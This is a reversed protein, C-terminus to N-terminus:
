KTGPFVVQGKTVLAVLGWLGSNLLDGVILGTALPLSRSYLRLGGYRVVLTKAVWGILFPAWYWNMGWCMAAMFGVPHFPWWWFHLRMLGLLLGFAGGGLLAIIGNTDPGPPHYLVRWIIRGGDQTSQPGLWGGHLGRLGYWGYHYMGGLIVLLALPLVIVFAGIFAGTLRRPNLGAADAIKFSELTNGSIAEYIVGFGQGYTWRMSIITVLERVKFFSPGFPTNLLFELELPFMSFGLGTEARLRAWVLYYGLIGSILMLAMRLRGGAALVFYVMGVFTVVAGITALRYPLPEDADDRGSHAKPAFAIRFARGLHQRASWIAWLGIAIAAGGGLFRPAPFNSDWINAPDRPQVGMTVGIVNAAVLLWWFLWCSLSLEKPILYAIAIMWPWLVLTIEGIGGGPGVRQPAMLQLPGLPISPLSPWRTALANLFTVGFSLLAGLWFPWAGPLRAAKGEEGTVLQLPIQALPFSLREHSIWHRQLLALLCVFCLFLMLMFGGWAGLPVWWERWPVRAAGLFFGEVAAPTSPAFWTPVQDLFVTEWIQNVRAMFYFSITGVLVWASTTRGILPGVVLLMTYVTLLERRDFRLRRLAPRSALAALVVLLVVPAVSPVGVFMQTSDWAIEVFFTIPVFIVLLVIAVLVARRSVGLTRPRAAAVGGAGRMLESPSSRDSGEV